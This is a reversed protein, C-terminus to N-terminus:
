VPLPRKETVYRAIAQSAAAGFPSQNLNCNQRLMQGDHVAASLVGFAPSSDERRIGCGFLKVNLM